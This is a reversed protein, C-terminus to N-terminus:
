DKLKQSDWRRHLWLWQGPNDTIWDELYRHSDAIIEEQNRATSKKDFLPLPEYVTIEFHVGGLRKNQVPVLPVDFKQCLQAFVPNTMAATGFFDVAVGQNYKQDILMGIFRKNKIAEILYKGGRRSKAHAKIRGDLSRVKQLLRDTWPNNPARYTGDLEQDFQVLMTPALIEWNSFHASFFVAGTEDSFLKELIDQGQVKTRKRAIYELHPYEAVVRGLNDWMATIIKKQEQEQLDPLALVLNRQAKRSAALRPGILRGLFGGISSACDVPMFRFILFFIHLLLAEVAYRLTKM